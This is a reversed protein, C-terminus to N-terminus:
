SVSPDVAFFGRLDILGDMHVSVRDIKIGMKNGFAKFTIEQCAGLSYLLLEVPNPASDLGGLGKPEDAGVVHKGRITTASRLGESLESTSSYTFLAKEPERRYRDQIAMLTAASPGGSMTRLRQSGGSRAVVPGPLMKVLQRYM